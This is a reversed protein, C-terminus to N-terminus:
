RRQLATQTFFIGGFHLIKSFPLYMFLAQGLMFHLLFPTKLPPLAFKLTVLSAFYERTLSLDFHGFFRMINGTVIIALLLLLAIYDGSQTIERVRGVVIRRFILLLATLMILIGAAGGTVASMTDANIGLAAWLRPFDVVVRVHGVLILALMAHFVWASVWLFRDGKFLGPFFFTAKLVGVFTDAGEEPAPYLTMKPIPLKWWVRFRYLLGGVFVALTIPPLIVGVLYGFGEM